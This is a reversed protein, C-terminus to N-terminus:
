SLINMVLANRVLKVTILTRASVVSTVSERSLSYMVAMANFVRTYSKRKSMRTFSTMKMKSLVEM